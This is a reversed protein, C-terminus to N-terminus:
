PCICIVRRKVCRVGDGCVVGWVVFIGTIFYLQQLSRSRSSATSHQGECFYPRYFDGGLGVPLLTIIVLKNKNGITRRQKGEGFL